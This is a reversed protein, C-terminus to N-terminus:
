KKGRKNKALRNKLKNVYAEAENKNDFSKSLDYQPHTKGTKGASVVSVGYVRSGAGSFGSGSSLEFAVNSNLKGVKLKNPTIFNKSRGYQKKLIESATLKM